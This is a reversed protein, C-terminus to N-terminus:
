NTAAKYTDVSSAPVYIKYETGIDNFANATLSPPTSSMMYISKLSYCYRFAYSNIATVGSPITIHSLAVDNYFCYAGITKLSDPLVVTDLSYCYALSYNATTATITNPLNIETLSYCYM